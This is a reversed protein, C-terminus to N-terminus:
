YTSHKSATSYGNTQPLQTKNHMVVKMEQPSQQYARQAKHAKVSDRVPVWVLLTTVSVILFILSLWYTMWLMEFTWHYPTSVLTLTRLVENVTVGILSFSLLVKLRRTLRRNIVTRLM